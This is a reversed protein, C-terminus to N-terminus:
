KKSLFQRIASEMSGTSEYLKMLSEHQSGETLYAAWVAPPVELRYINSENGIKIMMETYKRKGTLDNKISKLQHHDHKSLRLRSVLDQYGKQNRLSYIVQTNEMISASTDNAPLQSISQLIIGIAGNQKRIAQYYFEVSELVGEFKLQKAFEDFLIIGRESRTRWITRQIATKILKLMVMLIEKKNKAEDLEFVIIRKDELRYAQDETEAFLSAYVGEDVYESMVHLFQPLDFYSKSIELEELVGEKKHAIFHYFSELSHAKEVAQYYALLIKRLSVTYETLRKKNNELPLLELLFEVLDELREASIQTDRAMYFPNIGISQGEEYRMSIFDDPYLAAFKQYSGGLDIIVLRVGEEYYQRLIHNALFSKGEGTPAFIAFNRAKIRKNDEDWVDKLLPMNFRRDCFQIGKSDSRYNSNNIYLCLAHKLDMVYLDENSLNSTYTFFSNLYLNKRQEQGTQYPTIDLEKFEAKIKSGITKLRERSEDWYIINLHGRVIRASDDNAIKEIIAETRKLWHKNQIGFGSSRSLDTKQKNLHDLWKRRDDLYFIQNVIHNENLKLGIGDSFGQYFVFEDTAFQTDPKCSTLLDGFVKENTLALLNFHNDGISIHKKGLEIDTLAGQEFGNFFLRALSFFDSEELPDLEIQGSNNIFRVADEVNTKFEKTAATSETVISKKVSVFPNVYKANNLGKNKPWTFFLYSEHSMWERDTFYNKTRKQLFTNEPFSSAEFLTKLYVDQKHVVTGVPLQKLAQHWLGHLSDFDSESLSYVEPLNVRYGVCINGNNALVVSDEVSAIPHYDEFNIRM